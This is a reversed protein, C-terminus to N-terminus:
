SAAIVAIKHGGKVGFYETQDAALRKKATTATPNSGTLIHCATDTHVRIFQTAANFASSQLSGAGVVVTQEALLFQEDAVQIDGRQGRGSSSYEAIYLIAM